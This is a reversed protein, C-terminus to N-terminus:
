TEEVPVFLGVDMRSVGPDAKSKSVCKIPRHELDDYPRCKIKIWARFCFLAAFYFQFAIKTVAGKPRLTSSSDSSSNSRYELLVGTAGSVNGSGLSAVLAVLSTSSVISRSAISSSNSGTAVYM